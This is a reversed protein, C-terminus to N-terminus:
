NNNRVQNFADILIKQDSPNEMSDALIDFCNDIIRRKMTMSGKNYCKRVLIFLDDTVKNISM